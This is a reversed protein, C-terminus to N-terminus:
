GAHSLEQVFVAQIAAAQREIPWSAFLAIFQDRTLAIHASEPHSREAERPATPKRAAKRTAKGNAKPATGKPVYFHKTCRGSTNSSRLVKGCGDRSCVRAPQDTKTAMKVREQKAPKTPGESPLPEKDLRKERKMRQTFPCDLGDECFVCVYVGDVMNETECSHGKRNCPVCYGREAM